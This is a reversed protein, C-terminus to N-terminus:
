TTRAMLRVLLRRPLLRAAAVFLVNHLGTTVTPGRRRDLAQLTQRAVQEASQSQWGPRRWGQERGAHQGFATRTAGPQLAIVHVGRDRMEHWLSTSLSTVFAKSAAYVPQSPQPADALISSVNVLADGEQAQACFAHSLRLLAEVNLRVIGLHQEPTPACFGGVRGIGANNILLHVHQQAFMSLAADVGAPTALDVNLVAHGAGPLEALVAALAERRRALLTVAYGREALAVAFARGIGESAGTVM